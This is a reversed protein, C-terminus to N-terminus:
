DSILHLAYQWTYMYMAFESDSSLIIKVLVQFVLIFLSRM